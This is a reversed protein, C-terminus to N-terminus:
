FGLREELFTPTESPVFEFSSGASSCCLGWSGRELHSLSCCSKPALISSCSTNGSVRPWRQRHMVALSLSPLLDLCLLGGAPISFSGLEAGEPCSHRLPGQLPM